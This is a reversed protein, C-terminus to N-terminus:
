ASPPRTGALSPRARIREHWEALRPHRARWDHPYRFDVYELAVALALDALTLRSAVLYTGDSLEGEAAALARAIKDERRRNAAASREAEPRRLELTRAVAQDLIGDALAAIRLVQWRAEGAPPILAPARLSDLYEAIVPSDFLVPADDRALAPVLGLPNYQPVPSDPAHPDVVEFPCDIGKEAILARIKRVYPSTLSGYLKM